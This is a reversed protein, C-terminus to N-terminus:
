RRGQILEGVARLPLINAASESRCSSTCRSCRLYRCIAAMQFLVSNLCRQAVELGTTCHGLALEFGSSHDGSRNVPAERESNGKAPTANCCSKGCCRGGITGCWCKLPPESCDASRLSTSFALCPCFGIFALGFASAVVLSLRLHRGLKKWM